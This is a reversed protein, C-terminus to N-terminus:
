KDKKQKMVTVSNELEKYTDLVESLRNNMSKIRNLIYDVNDNEVSRKESKHLRYVLYAIIIVSLIHFIYHTM